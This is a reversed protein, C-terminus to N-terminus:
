LGGRITGPSCKAAIRGSDAHVAVIERGRRLDSRGAQIIIRPLLLRGVLQRMTGFWPTDVGMWKSVPGLDSALMLARYPRHFWGTLYLVQPNSEMVIKRVLTHDDRESPSMLRCNIGRVLDPDFSAQDPAFAIVQLEVDKVASLARWCATMYGSIDTWCLTIRMRNM